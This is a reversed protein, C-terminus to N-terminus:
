EMKVTTRETLWKMDRDDASTFKPDVSLHEGAQLPPMTTAELWRHNEAHGDAFTVNGSGNHYSAPYDLITYRATMEVAFYGDNISDEREDILVWTDSPNRIEGLKKFTVYNSDQWAGTGNMYANMAVSRVRGSKDGPCRYVDPNQVCAGISGFDAYQQGVLLSTNTGDSKDGPENATRLWGAVWSPHAADKGAQTTDNIPPLNDEHDSIFTAWGLHLQRLNSSCQTGQARTKVKGLVPLLLSALIAVIAIVVLLEILTFGLSNGFRSSGKSSKDSVMGM